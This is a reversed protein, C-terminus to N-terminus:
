GFWKGDAPSVFHLTAGAAVSIGTGTAVGNVTDTGQGFVQMANASSNIVSQRAGALAPKLKVSDAATAVTAVENIAATLATASAKGGGAHAVIGAEVSNTENLAEFNKSLKQRLQPGAGVLNTEYAM